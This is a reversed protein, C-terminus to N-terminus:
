VQGPGFELRKMTKRGTTVKIGMRVELDYSEWAAVKELWDSCEKLKERDYEGTEARGGDDKKDGIEGSATESNRGPQAEKWLCAAMEYRALPATWNDKDGGKFEEWDHGDIVEDALLGKAERTRNLHRLMSARLVALIAREDLGEKDWHTNMGRGDGREAEVDRAGEVPLFSRGDSWGLRRLSEEKMERRMRCGGGWFFIMEEVPSVGVADAVKVGWEKARARWKAIKRTVFIDLPLRRAIFRKKGSHLVADAICREAEKAHHEAQAPDPRVPRSTFTNSPPPHVPLTGGHAHIRYLEIHCAAAIYFYLSKIWNNLESCRLFASACPAYAHLFLLDFALEFQSLAEVQKLSSPGPPNTAANPPNALESSASSSLPGPTQEASTSETTKPDPGSQKSLMEVARELKGQSALTRAEEMYWFQSKPYRKRMVKLLNELRGRPYASALQIDMFAVTANYYGFLVLGAAAGNINNHNSARWILSLGRSKDGHFGIIPLLRSFAPPILSILLSLVGYYLSSTSHIYADIPNEFYAALPDSSDLPSWIRHLSPKSALQDQKGVKTNNESTGTTSVTEEADHFKHGDKATDVNGNVIFKNQDHVDTSSSSSKISMPVSEMSTKSERRYDKVDSEKFGRKILHKREVDAIRQLTFYAKRVRYFGKISETLSENEIAVIATLIQTQAVIM